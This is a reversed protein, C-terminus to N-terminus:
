EGEVVCAGEFVGFPIPGAVALEDRILIALIIHVRFSGDYSFCHEVKGRLRVVEFFLNVKEREIWSSLVARTLFVMMFQVFLGEM